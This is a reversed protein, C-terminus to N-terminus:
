YEGGSRAATRLHPAKRLGESRGGLLDNLRVRVSNTRESRETALTARRKVGLGNPPGHM